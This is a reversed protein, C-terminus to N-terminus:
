VHRCKFGCSSNIESFGMVYMQEKWPIVIYAYNLTQKKFDAACDDYFIVAENGSSSYVSMPLQIISSTMLPLLDALDNNWAGDVRLDTVEKEFLRVREEIDDTNYNPFELIEYQHAIM